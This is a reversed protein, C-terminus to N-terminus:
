CRLLVYLVKSPSRHVNAVIDRQIRRLILFTQSLRQLSINIFTWSSAVTHLCKNVAV